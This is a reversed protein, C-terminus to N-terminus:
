HQSKHGVLNFTAFVLKSVSLPLPRGTATALNCLALHLRETPSPDRIRHQPYSWLRGEAALKAYFSSDVSDAGAKFLQTMIEPKGLGFVHLPLSGIEKRVAEVISLVAPLNPAIRELGRIAIGDFSAGAYAQACYRASNADWAQVCAFLPLDRRRRNALAWYANAITLEVSQHANEANTGPSIPLDLTFAVDAIQAQLDLVDKPHIKETGDNKSIQIIGLGGSLLVQANQFLPTIGSSDVLLPIRPREQMERAYHYSVM